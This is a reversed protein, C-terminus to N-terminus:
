STITGLARLDDAASARAAADSARPLLLVLRGPGRVLHEIDIAGHVLGRAHIAAVAARLEAAEREDLRGGTPFPEGTPHELVLRGSAEDLALVAQVHPSSVVAFERLRAAHPRDLPVLEVERGLLEDRARDPAAGREYRTAESAPPPVSPPAVPRIAASASTARADLGDQWTSWPMIALAERVELADRARTTPDKDLLRAILADIQAGLWPAMASPVPPPMGLHQAAFDPGPFPLAGVLCQFLVVGVAYLDTAPDPKQQGTIQEPAMTALSGIMAGTRTQGLDILHAAGFDGLKVEGASGFFVNQPKVDRHVVGRRHVADLASLVARVVHHAVTPGLPAGPALRDALTGGAMHEMVLFPGEPHYDFVRVISPHDISAALRAERAFRVLADKGSTGEVTSLVKIAVTRGFFTDEALLVRGSGGVGLTKGPKYRGLLLKQAASSGLGRADGFTRELFESVTPPLTADVKRLDDLVAAAAESLDLQAMAAVLLRSAPVRQTPDARAIQLAKAAHDARGFRLLIRALALAAEGDEPADKLHRELLRGASKADGLEEHARAAARLDHAEEFLKAADALEGCAVSLHAADLTRGRRLAVAKGRRALEPDRELEGRLRESSARDQALVAYGYAEVFLGASSTVEIARDYKWVTAYLEAAREPHGQKLALAAADEHKGAKALRDTAEEHAARTTM